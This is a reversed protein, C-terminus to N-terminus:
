MRGSALVKALLLMKILQFSNKKIKEENPSFSEKIMKGGIVALLAFAVWHEVEDFKHAFLTGTFYGILPMLAQFFGFYIGPILYQVTKPKKVSLGLTISVAFADLSLGVAIFIIELLGMCYL